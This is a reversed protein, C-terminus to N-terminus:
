DTTGTLNTIGTKVLRSVLVLTDEKKPLLRIKVSISKNNPKGVEDVLSTLIDCLLDPTSLLAAGM